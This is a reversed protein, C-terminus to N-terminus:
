SVSTTQIQFPKETKPELREQAGPLNKHEPEMLYNQKRVIFVGWCVGWIYM